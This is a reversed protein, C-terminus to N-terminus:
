NIRHIYWLLLVKKLILFWIMTLMTGLILFSRRFSFLVLSFFFVFLCNMSSFFFNELFKYLIYKFDFCVSSLNCLTLFYIKLMLNLTWGSFRLGYLLLFLGHIRIYAVLCSVGVFGLLRFCFSFFLFFRFLHKCLIHLFVTSLPHLLPYICVNPSSAKFQILTLTQALSSRTCLEFNHLELTQVM